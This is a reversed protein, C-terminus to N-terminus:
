RQSLVVLSWPLQLWSNEVLLPFGKLTADPKEKDFFLHLRNIETHISIGSLKMYANGKRGTSIYANGKWEAHRWSM